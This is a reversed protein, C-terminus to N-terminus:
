HVEQRAAKLEKEASNFIDSVKAGARVASLAQDQAKLIASWRNKVEPKPDPKPDPPKEVKPPEPEKPKLAILDEAPKPKEEVKKEEPKPPQPVAEAVEKKPQEPAPPPEATKPPPAKSTEDAIKAKEPQQEQIGVKPAAAHKAIAEFEVMVPEPEIPARSFFNFNVVAAVIAVVHVGASLVAPTRMEITTPRVPM